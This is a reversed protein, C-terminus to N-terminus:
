ELAEKLLKIIKERRVVRGAAVIKGNISLAPMGVPGLASIENIDRVHEFDADLGLEALASVTEAALQECNACGPGYVRVVLGPGADEGALDDVAEGQAIKFERLLARAYDERSSEPVYNRASVLDVLASALDSESAFERSRAEEFVEDLGALGIRHGKVKVQRIDAM